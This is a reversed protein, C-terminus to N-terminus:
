YKSSKELTLTDDDDVTMTSEQIDSDVKHRLFELDLENPKVEETLLM